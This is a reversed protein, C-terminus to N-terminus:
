VIRAGLLLGDVFPTIYIFFSQFFDKEKEVKHFFDEYKNFSPLPKMPNM